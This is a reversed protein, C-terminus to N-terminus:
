FISTLKKMIKSTECETLEKKLAMNDLHSVLKKGNESMFIGSFVFDCEEM